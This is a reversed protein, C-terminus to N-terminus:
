HSFYPLSLTVFLLFIYLEALKQILVSNLASVSKDWLYFNYLKCKAQLETLIAMIWFLRKRAWDTQIRSLIDPRFKGEFLHTVSVLHSTTYPSLIGSLYRHNLCHLHTTCCNRQEPKAKCIFQVSCKQISCASPFGHRFYAAPLKPYKLLHFM